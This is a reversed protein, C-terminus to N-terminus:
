KILPTARQCNHFGLLFGNMGIHGLLLRQGIGPLKLRREDEQGIALQDVEPIVLVVICADDIGEERTPVHFTEYVHTSLALWKGRDFYRIVVGTLTLRAFQARVLLVGHTGHITGQFEALTAKEDLQWRAGALSVEDALVDLAQHLCTMGLAYQEQDVAFLECLLRQLSDGIQETLIAVVPEFGAHDLRLLLDSNAQQLGHDAAVIFVGAAVKIDDHCVLRVPGDIAGPLRCQRVKIGDMDAQGCRRSSIDLAIRETKILALVIRRIERVRDLFSEFFAVEHWVTKGLADGLDDRFASIDIFFM